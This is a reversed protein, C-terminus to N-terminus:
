ATSSSRRSLGQGGAPGDRGRGEHLRRGPSQRRPRQLDQLKADGAQTPRFGRRPASLLLTNELVVDPPLAVAEEKDMGTGSIYARGGDIRMKFFLRQGGQEITSDHYRFGNTEPDLHYTLKLRSEVPQGMARVQMLIAHELLILKRGEQVLPSTTFKVYGCLTGNIEYPTTTDRRGCARVAGPVALASSLVVTM